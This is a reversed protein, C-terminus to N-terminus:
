ITPTPEQADRPRTWTSVTRSLWHVALVIVLARGPPGGHAIGATVILSAWFSLCFRCSLLYATREAIRSASREPRLVAIAELKARLTKIAPLVEIIDVVDGVALAALAIEFPTLM